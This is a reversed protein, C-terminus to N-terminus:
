IQNRRARKSLKQVLYPTKENPYMEFYNIMFFYLDFRTFDSKLNHNKLLHSFKNKSEIKLHLKNIEKM